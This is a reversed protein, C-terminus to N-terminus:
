VMEIYRRVEWDTIAEDWLRIEHERTGAYHDVFEDGLCERAVSEKAAIRGNFSDWQQVPHLQVQATSVQAPPPEGAAAPESGGSAQKCATLGVLAMSAATALGTRVVWHASIASTM